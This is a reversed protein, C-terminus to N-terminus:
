RHRTGPRGKIIKSFIPFHTYHVKGREDWQNFQQAVDDPKQVDPGGFIAETQKQLAEVPPHLEKTDSGFLRTHFVLNTAVFYPCFVSVAIGKPRLYAFLGESLGLLGFKTVAYPILLQAQEPPESANFGAVSSTNIIYGSGRALMHPLFAKVGRVAGVLNIELIWEWGEISLNEVLGNLGVGANNMLIDVKGMMSISQKALYEVDTNKSVDCHVALARRNLGRIEQCITELGVDDLDAVVIDAGQKAMALAASRGIGSAGGTIVAVKDKFEM